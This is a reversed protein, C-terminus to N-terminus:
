ATGLKAVIAFRTSCTVAGARVPSTSRRASAASWWPGGPGTITSIGASTATWSTWSTAGSGPRMPQYILGSATKEAGKEKAASALFVESKQKEAAAAKTARAKALDQVKQSYAQLEVKPTTGAAADTIGLRVFEMEEPTLSFTTLNSGLLLGLAYLTKEDETKPETVKATSSGPGCGAFAFPCNGHLNM